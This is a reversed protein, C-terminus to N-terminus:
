FYRDKGVIHLGLANGWGLKSFHRKLSGMALQGPRGRKRRSRWSKWELLSLFGGGGGGGFCCSFGACGVLLLSCCASRPNNRVVLNLNLGGDRRWCCPRLLYGKLGVVDDASPHPHLGVPLRELSALSSMSHSAIHRADFPFAHQIM